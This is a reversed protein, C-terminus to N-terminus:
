SPTAGHCGCYIAPYEWVTLGTRTSSPASGYRRLLPPSFRRSLLLLPLALLFVRDQGRYLKHKGLIRAILRQRALWTDRRCRARWASAVFRIRGSTTSSQNSKPKNSAKDLLILARDLGPCRVSSNQLYRDGIVATLFILIVFLLIVFMMQVVNAASRHGIASLDIALDCCANSICERRRVQVALARQLQALQMPSM